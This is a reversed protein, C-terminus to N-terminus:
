THESHDDEIMVRIYVSAPYDIIGTDKANLIRTLAKRNRVNVWPM